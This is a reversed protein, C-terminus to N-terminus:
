SIIYGECPLLEPICNILASLRFIANNARASNAYTEKFRNHLSIHLCDPLPSQLVVLNPGGSITSVQNELPLLGHTEV